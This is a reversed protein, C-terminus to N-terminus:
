TDADPEVPSKLQQFEPLDRLLRLDPDRKMFDFEPMGQEAALRLKKMAEAQLDHVRQDREESPEEESTTELARGYVCASNYSFVWDDPFREAAEEVLQIGEEIDGQRVLVIGLGTVSMGDFPNRELTSRFDAAAEDLQDLQLRSHGRGSYASTLEPDLEIAIDYDDIAKAWNEDGAHQQANRLAQQGPSRNEMATLVEVIQKLKGMDTALTRAQRLANIAEQTGIETLARTLAGVNRATSADNLAKALVEVAESSDQLQLVAIASNFLIREESQIAKEALAVVKDSQLEALESLVVAQEHTALSSFKQTLTEDIGAGGVRALTKILNSRNQKTEDLHKVLLPVAHADPCRELLMLVQHSPFASEIQTLAAELALQNCEENEQSILLSFATERVPMDESHVAEALLQVLHPHGIRGLALLADRQVDSIEENSLQERPFDGTAYRTLSSLWQGRPYTSLIRSLEGPTVFLKSELLEALAKHAAPFRSAALCEVALVAMQADTSHAHQVLTDVSLPHNFEKLAIVAARQLVRDDGAALEMIMPLQDEELRDAATALAAARVLRDGHQIQDLIQSAPLHHFVPELAWEVASAEDPHLFRRNSQQSSSSFQHGPLRAVHIERISPAIAPFQAYQRATGNEEAIQQVWGSLKESMPGVTESFSLVIRSVGRSALQDTLSALTGVNVTDLTGAIQILGLSMGPGIQTHTMRLGHSHHENVDIQISTRNHNLQLVMRPVTTIAPLNTFILWTSQEEGAALMLEQHQLLDRFPISEEDVDVSSGNLASPHFETSYEMGDALLRMASMALSTERKSQNTVRLECAFYRVGGTGLATFDLVSHQIEVSLDNTPSTAAEQAPLRSSLALCACVALTTLLVRITQPCLMGTM